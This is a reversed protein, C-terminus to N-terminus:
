AFPNASDIPAAPAVTFGDEPKHPWHAAFIQRLAEQSDDPACRVVTATYAVAPTVGQVLAVAFAAARRLSPAGQLDGADAKERAIRMVRCVDRALAGSPRIGCDREVMGRLVRAEVDAPLYEFSLFRGIRDLTDSGMPARAGYEAGGGHGFTNDAVFIAVGPARELKVGTSPLRVPAGDRELVPNLSAIHGQASYTIEDLLLIAGPTSVATAVPGFVFNTDGKTIGLGGLIDAAETSRNFNVRFFPRGLRAALQRTFETKGTGRPGGLWCHTSPTTSLAGLALLLNDADYAYLADIAPADPSAYCPLLMAAPIREVIPAPLDAFIERASRLTAGAPAEAIPRPAIVRTIIEGAARCLGADTITGDPAEFANALAAISAATPLSPVPMPAVEAVPAPLPAFVPAAIVAPAAMPPPAIVAPPAITPARAAIAQASLTTVADHPVAGSECWQTLMARLAPLPYANVDFPVPAAGYLAAILARTERTTLATLASALAKPNM